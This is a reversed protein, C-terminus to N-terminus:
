HRWGPAAFTRAHPRAAPMAGEFLATIGALLERGAAEGQMQSTCDMLEPRLHWLADLDAAMRIRLALRARRAAGAEGMAAIMAARIAELHWPDAPTPAQESALWGSISHLGSRIWRM